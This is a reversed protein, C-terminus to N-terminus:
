PKFDPNNNSGTASASAGRPYLKRNNFSFGMIGTVSSFATDKTFGVPPYPCPAPTCTAPTGYRPWIYDDLRLNGTVVLEYFPGSDPNDNTIVVSGPAGGIQVLLSEYPEAAAGAATGVQAATVVLPTMTTVTPDTVVIRAATIQNVNFIENSRGMVQIKQGIRAGTTATGALAGAKLFIGQWPVGTAGEQIYMLDNTKRATVLGEVSVVTPGKPHDSASPNRVSSIPLVCPEAGPNATSCFDCANGRGDKDTDAQDDNAVMPCNDLGNAIGDGDLDTSVAYECKQTADFPCEDCADGIGDNDADAQRGQDMPRVPNFITPCNDEEDPIGDGDKDADSPVGTYANSGKVSESEGRSPLCSPEDDPTKERCFYAPYYVEGATLIAQLKPAATTRVDICAAKAKGCVATPFSECAEPDGWIANKVLPDDGYMMRGGRLVMAIDEVGAAIVARFDKNTRGDYVAIDALYGQKLMGIAHSAGVAFAGNITAMRWLDADTFHNDFYTKNWSDACKLERLMNMSGSPIWDTGLSIMVGALDLMVAQTTNGYLDTNSRPSWVVKAQDKQITTANDPNLAVAHIIATQKQVLDHQDGEASTCVIENHAEEDIGESIHPLYSELQSIGGRTTRGSSYDCGRALNKGPTSLPFVDTDAILIPLGELEDASTDLNRILGPIGGGGAISTTGGMLFRLEGYAQVTQNAGSKYDLRTHGRAGQWDSRNEYRLDGHGIPKNNQYTLHEHPNVTGPSIVGNPCSVVSADAYGATSKCDCAACVIYGRADVVIEGNHLVEEPTLVTGRIVKMTGAAGAKTVACVASGATAVSGGCETVKPQANRNPHPQRPQPEPIGTDGGGDEGDEGDPPKPFSDNENDACNILLALFGSTVFAILARSLKM